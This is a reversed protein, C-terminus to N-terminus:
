SDDELISEDIEVAEVIVAINAKAHATFHETLEWEMIPKHDILSPVFEVGKRHECMLNLLLSNAIMVPVGDVTIILNIGKAM